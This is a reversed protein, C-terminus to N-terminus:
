VCVCCLGKMAHLCLVPGEDCAFAWWCECVRACGRTPELSPYLCGLKICQSEELRVSAAKRLDRSKGEKMTLSVHTCDVGRDHTLDDIPATARKQVDIFVDMVVTCWVFAIIDQPHILPGTTAYWVCTASAGTVRLARPAFIGYTPWRRLHV